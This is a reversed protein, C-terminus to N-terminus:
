LDKKRAVDTVSFVFKERNKYVFDSFLNYDLQVGSQKNFNSDPLLGHKQLLELGTSKYQEGYGYAFPEKAIFQGDIYIEVSHYTNGNIKDFWKRAIFMVTKGGLNKELAKNMERTLVKEKNRKKIYDKKMDEVYSKTLEKKDIIETSGYGGFIFFKDGREKIQFPTDKFKDRAEYINLQDSKFPKIGIYKATYPFSVKQPQKIGKASMRHIHPDRGIINKYGKGRGRGM